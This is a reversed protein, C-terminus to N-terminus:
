FIFDMKLFTLFGDALFGLIRLKFVISFYFKFTGKLAFILIVRLSCALNLLIQQFKTTYISSPLKMRKETDHVFQPHELTPSQGSLNRVIRSHSKLNEELTYNQNQVM